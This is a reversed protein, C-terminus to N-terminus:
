SGTDPDPGRRASLRRPRASVDAARGGGRARGAGADATRGGDAGSRVLDRGGFEDVMWVETATSERRILDVGLQNTVIIRRADVEIYTFPDGVNVGTAVYM